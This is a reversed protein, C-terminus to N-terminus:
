QNLFVILTYATGKCQRKIFCTNNHFLMRNFDIFYLYTIKLNFVICLSGLRKGTNIRITAIDEPSM